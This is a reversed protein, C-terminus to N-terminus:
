PSVAFGGPDAPTDLAPEGCYRLIYARVADRLVIAATWDSGDPVCAAGIRLQVAGRHLLWQRARLISRTGRVAVPIIPVGAQAAVVFAGMRFPRLGPERGFTGEAFFVVKRGQQVVHLVQATDEVSRQTDFREVFVTGLRQLLIRTFWFGTLERKAVYSVDAPLAATLAIIDVYSAHNAVLISAKQEPLYEMGQVRLPIGTLRLMLRTVTRAVQQCWSRRPLVAILLWAAVSLTACITWAYATYGFTALSHRYRRLQPVLGALALHVVQRWVAAPRKGLDGREYRERSASRRLKGSSTKLVTHPPALVVDDPPTGILELVLADIQRRLGDLTDPNTERTEALVVLRETGSVPDASGFVAVCGKRIGTLNGLAEELEHPYLNRGARIILDKARGTIYVDGEAIYALDGSDLWPGHFLRRTAEPYRYYGSTASPGCFELRGEQREPVEYGAADVIRIQHGQLPQGCSVFSVTDTDDPDAPVAQGTRMLPERKIRDIRAGRGPPSFALGLSGEALGYVPTMAEPRFGYAAFREGFCRITEPSVPEAGNFAIRWSSLDLGEIDREHVRRLCLEYGFNPGGSITGGHTHIAWLWRDPRALFTLPSMLVLHFAHYLSGLWAGILGMDHYLPLWSVFVDQSSVQASQTMARVNALLNAHTLIVGKPDGTSGSTYQLFAIDHTQVVPRTASGTTTALESVTLVDRLTDVQPRILRALTQAESVTILMTAQANNLIGAQRRLHEEIQSPRTPPYIPVPVGGALLIGYFGAFFARSTPLMLAVTQGPQLDRGRLGAAVAAAEEYLATYTIQEVTGTDDYLSIHLRQPHAQVHWALVDVLTQAQTPLAQVAELVQQKDSNTSSPVRTVAQQIARLVDRPTEATALLHEALRVDFTRELREFLEVRGLSDFGLERELSSDLHVAM